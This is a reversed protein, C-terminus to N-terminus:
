TAAGTVVTATRNGAADYTYAIIVGNSYVVKVLRGLNDYTYSASGAYAIGSTSSLVVTVALGPLTKISLSSKMILTEGFTVVLMM